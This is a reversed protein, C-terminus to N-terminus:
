RRDRTENSWMTAMLFMFFAFIWMSIKYSWKLYFAFVNGIWVYFQESRERKGTMVFKNIQWYPRFSVQTLRVGSYLLLAGLTILIGSVPNAGSQAYIMAGPLGYMLGGLFLSLTHRLNEDNYKTQGFFKANQLVTETMSDKYIEAAKNCTALCKEYKEQSAIIMSGSTSDEIYFGHSLTVLDYACTRRFEVDSPNKEIYEDILKFAMEEKGMQEYLYCQESTVISDKPYIELMRNIYGQAYEYAAIDASYRAGLRLSFFDNPYETLAATIAAFAARMNNSGYNAMALYHYLRVDKVNNSIAENCKRVLTDYNGFSLLQDLEDLFEKAVPQIEESVRGEKRAKDLDRDYKKKDREFTKIADEFVQLDEQIKKELEQNFPNMQAQKMRKGHLSRLQSVIEEASLNPDLNFKQYYDVMEGSKKRM